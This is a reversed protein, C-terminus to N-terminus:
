NTKQIRVRREAWDARQYVPTPIVVKNESTLRFEDSIM